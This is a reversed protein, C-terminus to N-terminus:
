KWRSVSVSDPRCIQTEPIFAMGTLVICEKGRLFLFHHIRCKRPERWIFFSSFFFDGFFQGEYCIPGKLYSNDTQTTWLMPLLFSHGHTLLTLIRWWRNRLRSPRQPVVSSKVVLKGWKKETRWQGLPSPSSWAQGNGSSTKGGRGRDVKDEDGKWQAKCSPKPWVQHVPSRDM